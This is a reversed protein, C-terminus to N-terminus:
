GASVNNAYWGATLGLSHAYDTMNKFDPFRNTNVLPQGQASHYTYGQPGYSGCAQWNDALPLPPLPALARAHTHAHTRASQPRYRLWPLPPRSAARV